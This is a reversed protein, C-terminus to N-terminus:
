SIRGKGRTSTSVANVWLPLSTEEEAMDSMRWIQGFAGPVPAVGHLAHVHLWSLHLLHHEALAGGPHLRAPRGARGAGGCVCREVAAGGPPEALPVVRWNAVAAPQCAVGVCFVDEQPSPRPCQRGAMRIAFVSKCARGLITLIGLAEAQVQLLATTCQMFLLVSWPAQQKNSSTCARLLGCSQQVQMKPLYFYPGSGRALLEKANHFFFLAFDFIAAPVPQRDVHMHKELLHWGRPRVFLVATQVATGM